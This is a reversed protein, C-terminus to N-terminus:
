RKEPFSFEIKKNKLVLGAKFSIGKKSIFGDLIPTTKYSFLAKAMEPEIKRKLLIYPVMVGCKGECEWGWQGKIIRKKCDPCRADINLFEDKPLKPIDFSINYNIIKGDKEIPELILTADFSDGNKKKFGRIPGLKRKSFLQKLQNESLMKGCISGVTFKCGNNHESCGYGWKYHIMYSGCVPCILDTNPGAANEKPMDMIKKCWNTVDTYIEHLFEGSDMECNVIKNLKKECQATLVASKIDDIPIKHILQIGRLSAVINKKDRLLFGKEILGEIISARTAVTGIGDIKNEAMFKKLDDDELNKGASVMAALLTKDTYHKPPETKKSFVKYEATVIENVCLSPLFEEKKNYAVFMWGPDEVTTGSTVFEEGNVETIITTTKLKADPYLMRIVSHNILDYINQENQSLGRAMVETPIIAFHSGLKSNDFFKKRNKDMNKISCGKNFYHSYGNQKLMSHINLIKHEMDEPLFQCDTRPYTVFGKEYLKQTADLTAKLSMGYKSNADMQLADLNYLHPVPKIKETNEISKIIGSFGICKNLACDAEERKSFRKKIHTGKYIEGESTTFTGEVTFYDKPKFNKISEDREVVMTLTPTQVRGVSTVSHEAGRLTMAVTLNCGVVWDAIARCQASALLGAFESSDMLHEFADKIGQVSTSTLKMRKVPKRCKSYSYVYYFILEGERDFDTANIILDAKYFLDKVIRYTEKVPMKSKENLVIKYEPPLFPVPMNTWNKYKENYGSADSLTCLHGYGWTIYYKCDKYYIEYYGNKKQVERFSSGGLSSAIIKAM